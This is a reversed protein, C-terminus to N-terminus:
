LIYWIVSTLIMFVVIVNIEEENIHTWLSLTMLSPSNKKRMTNNKVLPLDSKSDHPVM